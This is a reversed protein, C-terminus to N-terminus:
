SFHVGSLFIGKLCHCVEMCKKSLFVKFELDQWIQKLEIIVSAHQMKEFLTSLMLMLM